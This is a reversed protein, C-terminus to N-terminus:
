PRATFRRFPSRSPKAAGDGRFRAQVRYRGPRASITRAFRGGRAIRATVRRVRVWGHASRRQVILDVRGASAGHVRGSLRVHRRKATAAVRARTRQSKRPQPTQPQPKQPKAPAATV